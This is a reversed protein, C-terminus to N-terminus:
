ATRMPTVWINLRSVSQITDAPEDRYLPHAYLLEMAVEEADGHRCLHLEEIEHSQGTCTRVVCLHLTCDRQQGHRRLLGAHEAQPVFISSTPPTV